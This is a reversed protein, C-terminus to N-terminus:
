AAASLHYRTSPGKGSQVLLGREALAVLHKSATAPGLRLLEALVAGRRQDGLLDGALQQWQAALRQERTLEREFTQRLQAFADGFSEGLGHREILALAAEREKAAVALYARAIALHARVHAPPEIPIALVARQRQVEAMEDFHAAFEQPLLRDPNAAAESGLM